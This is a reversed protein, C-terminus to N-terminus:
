CRTRIAGCSTASSGCNRASPSLASSACPTASICSRSAAGPASGSGEPSTTPWACRSGRFRKPSRTRRPGRRRSIPECGAPRPIASGTTSMSSCRGSATTSSGRSRTPRAPSAGGPRDSAAYSNHTAAFYVQSLRRGCLAASGQCSAPKSAPQASSCGGALAAIVALAAPAFARPAIVPAPLRTSGVCSLPLGRRSRARAVAGRRDAGLGDRGRGPARRPSANLAGLFANRDISLLRTPESATVTATRSVSHLLAIEGFGEGRRMHRIAAAAKTVAVEGDTIAYYRDGEEGERIM